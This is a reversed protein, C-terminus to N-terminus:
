APNRGPMRIKRTVMACGYSPLYAAHYGEPGGAVVITIDEARACICINKGDMKREATTDLLRAERPLLSLPIKTHEYLWRKVDNKSWGAESFLRAHKPPLIVAPSGNGKSYNNNGYAAMANALMSLISEPQLYSAAVSQTGQSSIVTVASDGAALGHEVHLPPWPSEEELEGLCFTYKGPMGLIAKDVEGPKAGGVNILILRIARGITANARWGPGLAGRGCNIGIEKRVPGNVVLFPAVPNTTTQVGLLNFEPQAMAEVAAIIVPLYQPLCGAMVANIALKEVTAAANEPPIYAIVTDPAAGVHDLMRLVRQETPPIVPLGDTWGKEYLGAFLEEVDDPMELRQSALVPTM